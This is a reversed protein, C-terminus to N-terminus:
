KWMRQMMPANKRMIYALFCSSALSLLLLLTSIPWKPSSIWGFCRGFCAKRPLNNLHIKCMPFLWPFLKILKLIITVKKWMINGFSEVYNEVNEAGSWIAQLNYYWYIGAQPCPASFQIFDVPSAKKNPCVFSEHMVLCITKFHCM